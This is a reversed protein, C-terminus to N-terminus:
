NEQCDCSTKQVKVVITKIRSGGNGAKIHRVLATLFGQGGDRGMERRGAVMENESM